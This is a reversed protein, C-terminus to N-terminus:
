CRHYPYKWYLEWVTSTASLNFFRSKERYIWFKRLRGYLAVATDTHHPSILRFPFPLRGTFELRECPGKPLNQKATQCKVSHDWDCLSWDRQTVHEARIGSYRGVVYSKGGIALLVFGEGGWCRRLIVILEFVVPCSSGQHAGIKGNIRNCSLLSIEEFRKDIYTCVCGCMCICTYVYIYLGIYLVYIHIHIYLHAHTRISYIANYRMEYKHSGQERHAGGWM